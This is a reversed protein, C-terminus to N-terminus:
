HALFKGQADSLGVTWRAVAALSGRRAREVEARLSVTFDFSNTHLKRMPLCGTGFKGRRASRRFIIGRRHIATLVM